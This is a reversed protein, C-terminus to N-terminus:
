WWFITSPRFIFYTGLLTFMHHTIILELYIEVFLSVRCWPRLPIAMVCVSIRPERQVLGFTHVARLLISCCSLHVSAEADIFSPTCCFLTCLTQLMFSLGANPVREVLLYHLVFSIFQASAGLPLRALSRTSGAAIPKPPAAVVKGTTRSTM